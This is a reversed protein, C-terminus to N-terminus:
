KKLKFEYICDCDGQQSWSLKKDASVCYVKEYKEDNDIVGQRNAQLSGIYRGDVYVDVDQPIENILNITCAPAKGRKKVTGDSLFVRQGNVMGVSINKDKGRTTTMSTSKADIQKKCKQAFLNQSSLMASAILVLVILKKM